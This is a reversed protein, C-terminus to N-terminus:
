RVPESGENAGTAEPAVPPPHGTRSRRRLAQRFAFFVSADVGTRRRAITCLAIGSVVASAATALAAGTRGWLAIGAANLVVNLLACGGFVHMGQRQHGTLNLLGAALGAGAYGAQGAALLVLVPAAAAFEAGFLQLLPRAGAGLAVAVAAAPWFAWQVATSALRQLRARDGGAHLAVLM